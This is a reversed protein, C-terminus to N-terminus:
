EAHYIRLAVYGHLQHHRDYLVCWAIYGNECIEQGLYEIILSLKTQLKYRVDKANKSTGKLALFRTTFDDINMDNNKLYTHSIGLIGRVYPAVTIAEYTSFDCNSIVSMFGNTIEDVIINNAGVIEILIPLQENEMHYTLYEILLDARYPINKGKAFFDQKLKSKTLEREMPDM